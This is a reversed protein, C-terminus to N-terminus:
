SPNKLAVVKELIANYDSVSLWDLEKSNLNTMAEVIYDNAKQMNDPNIKFDSKWESNTIAEVWQFLIENFKRDIWRTYVDKFAVEKETGNIVVSLTEQTM